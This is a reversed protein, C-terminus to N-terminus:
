EIAVFSWNLQLANVDKNEIVIAKKIAKGRAPVISVSNFKFRTKIIDPHVWENLPNIWNRKAIKM